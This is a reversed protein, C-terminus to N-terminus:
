RRKPRIFSQPPWKTFFKDDDYFTWTIWSLLRIPKATLYNQLLQFIQVELASSFVNKRGTRNTEGSQAHGMCFMESAVLSFRSHFDPKLLTTTIVGDELKNMTHEVFVKHELASENNGIFYCPPHRLLLLKYSNSIDDIVFEKDRLTDRSLQFSKSLRDVLSESISSFKIVIRVEFMIFHRVSCECWFNFQRLLPTLVQIWEFYWEYWIRCWKQSLKVNQHSHLIIWKSCGERHRNFKWAKNTMWKFLEVQFLKEETRTAFIQWFSWIRFISFFFVFINLIQKCAKSFRKCYVSLRCFM